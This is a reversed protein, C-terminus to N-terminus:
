PCSVEPNYDALLGAPNDEYLWLHREFFAPVGYRNDDDVRVMETGFLDPIRMDQPNLIEEDPNGTLAEEFVLYEVAVLELSGNDRPAYVLAEPTEPDVEADLLQANLYHIGMGGEASDICATGAADRLETYGAREAQGVSQFRATAAHVRQLESPGGASAAQYAGLGTLALALPAVAVLAVRGSM